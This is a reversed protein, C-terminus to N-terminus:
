FENQYRASIGRKQQTPMSQILLCISVLIAGLWGINKFHEGLLIVALLTAVLPEILTLLTAHSTEIFRLGYAFLLYGLFMPICALYLAVSGHEVSSFLNDGTFWLSPLLMLASLGFLGSMASNSHVGSEILRRAIWAYCAYSLGAICGLFIGLTDLVADHDESNSFDRGITMLVIGIAGLAFSILWKVSVLKQGILREIVAAFLPATAISVITGIAVGSWRMSTYFALPYLAVTLAGVVMLGLQKKLLHIDTKLQRMNSLVLLLGGFGTAFAGIAFPSVDPIMSSAIGTTGWLLSALVITFVGKLHAQQVSM